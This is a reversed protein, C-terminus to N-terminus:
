GDGAAANAATMVSEEHAQGVSAPSSWSALVARWVPLTIPTARNPDSIPLLRTDPSCAARAIEAPSV